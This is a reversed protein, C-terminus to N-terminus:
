NVAALVHCCNVQISHLFYAGTLLSRNTNMLLSNSCDYHKFEAYKHFCVTKVKQLYVVICTNIHTERLNRAIFVPSLSQVEMLRFKCVGGKRTIVAAETAFSKFWNRSVLLVHLSVLSLVSELAIDAVLSEHVFIIIHSVHVFVAVPSGVNAVCTPFTEKWAPFTFLMFLSM